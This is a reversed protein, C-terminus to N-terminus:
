TLWELMSLTIRKVPADTAAPVLGEHGDLGPEDRVVWVAAETDFPPDLYFPRSTGVADILALLLALDNTADADDVGRYSFEFERRDAGLSLLAAAGSEKQFVLTNPRKRDIWEPDPGRTLTRTRTFILEPIEWTGTGIIRMRLYRQNGSTM